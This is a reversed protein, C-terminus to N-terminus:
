QLKIEKWCSDIVYTKIGIVVGIKEFNFELFIKKLGESWTELLEINKKSTEARVLLDKKGCYFQFEEFDVIIEDEKKNFLNATFLSIEKNLRFYDKEISSKFEKKFSIIISSM